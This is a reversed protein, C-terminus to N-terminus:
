CLNKVIKTRYHDTWDGNEVKREESVEPVYFYAYCKGFPSDIEKRDYFSNNESGPDYGELQNLRNLGFDDVEYIEMVVSTDGGEKLGPFAGLDYLSYIPDTDFQGVKKYKHILHHNGLSERLSGYVAVLTKQAVTMKQKKYLKYIKNSIKRM